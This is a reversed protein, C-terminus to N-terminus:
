GTVPTAGPPGAGPIDVVVMDLRSPKSGILRQPQADTSSLLFLTRRGPGGLVCAIATRDGIDICDTVTGGAVIRQFQHAPDMSVWIGGKADLAIGHPQGALGEAFIRRDSLAGDPGVSFATLRRGTSEAVILTARDPTIVMGSPSSLSGAVVTVTDDPDIRVIVSGEAAQSGVYARGLDDVVMDGLSDPVTTSLDALTIVTEGDYRLIRRDDTSAILLTGNPRFGLGFPAHGPLPLTTMSGRLNVTHVAESLTDSFWLLGEFWRPGRGLRFDSALPTLRFQQCDSAQGSVYIFYLIPISDATNKPALLLRHFEDTDLFV